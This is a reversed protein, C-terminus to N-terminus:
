YPHIRVLVDAVRVVVASSFRSYVALQNPIKTLRIRTRRVGVDSSSNIGSYIRVFILKSIYQMKSSNKLKPM